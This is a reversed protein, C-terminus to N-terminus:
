KNVYTEYEKMVDDTPGDARIVGSELWISRECTSRISAERHSVLFVPTTVYGAYAAFDTTPDPQHTLTQHM